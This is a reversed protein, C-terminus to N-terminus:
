SVEPAPGQTVSTADTGSVVTTVASMPRRLESIARDRPFAARLRPLWVAAAEQNSHEVREPVVYRETGAFRQNSM